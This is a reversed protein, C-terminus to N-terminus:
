RAPACVQSALRDLEACVDEMRGSIVMRGASAPPHCAELVRLVRLPRIESKPYSNQGTARRPQVCPAISHMAGPHRPSALGTTKRRHVLAVGAVWSLAAHLPVFLGNFSIMAIGM